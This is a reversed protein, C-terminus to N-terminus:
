RHPPLLTACRLTVDDPLGDPLVLLAVPNMEVMVGFNYIEQNSVTAIDVIIIWGVDIVMGVLLGVGTEVVVLIDGDAPDNRFQNIVGGPRLNHFCGLFFNVQNIKVRALDM